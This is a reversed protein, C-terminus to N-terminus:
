GAGVGGPLAEVFHVRSYGLQLLLGRISREASGRAKERLKRDARVETEFAEKALQLLQATQESDLNSGIVETEGPLLEIQAEVPPLVVWAEGGRVRLHKADLRQLDLGLRAIAFVIAKGKPPRLTFKAWNLVDQALTAGAEPQADFSVKKYLQVELTELRAVERIQLVVAAPDPEARPGRLLRYSVVAGAAAFLLALAVIALGRLLKSAM